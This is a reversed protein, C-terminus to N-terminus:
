KRDDRQRSLVNGNGLKMKMLKWRVWGHRVSRVMRQAAEDWGWGTWDGTETETGNAHTNCEGTELDRTYGSGWGLGTTEM